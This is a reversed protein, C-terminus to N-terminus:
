EPILPVKVGLRLCERPIWRGDTVKVLGRVALRKLIREAAARPLEDLAETLSIGGTASALLEVLRQVRAARSVYNRREVMTTKERGVTVTERLHHRAQAVARNITDGDMGFREALVVRVRDEPMPGHAKPTDTRQGHTSGEIILFQESENTTLAFVLPEPVSHPNM